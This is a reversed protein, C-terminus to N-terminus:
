GAAEAFWGGAPVEVVEPQPEPEADPEWPWLEVAEARAAALAEGPLVLSAEPLGLGPLAVVVLVDGESPAPTLWYVQAFTRGGGGGGSSQLTYASPDSPDDVGYGLPGSVLRTGDALEVGVWMQQMAEWTEDRMGRSARSTRLAIRVELALGEAYCRVTQLVLAVDDTRALVHVGPLSGAVANEPPQYRLMARRLDDRDAGDSAALALSSHM